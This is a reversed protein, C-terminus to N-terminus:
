KKTNQRKKSRWQAYHRRGRLYGLDRGHTYAEKEFSIAMYAKYWNRLIAFRVLWELVYVIYFPVFLMERQQATHIREHNVVYGDIWSTDRSWITGFLNVCYRKPILRSRVIKTM